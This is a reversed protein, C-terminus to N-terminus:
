IRIMCNHEAAEMIGLVVKLSSLADSGSVLPEKDLRVCDIFADIVGTNTQNDNTQISELKYNIREGEKTIVEIQNEPSNYIKIIGKECYLTTSNDEEGYYTWSFSATGLRGQKTKLICVINDCVEIPKGNEDVKDLAGQFASVQAVEDDLLYHLLDIKHIGLDGAVGLGSRDKKFFWTSRTKNVGWQEPGQHGFTTRFTLVNGFEKSAIMEKAKQHARTFRQNHDIMLKNGTKRQAEVIENAHEMTLSIPKECLVHKGNLLAKTSFIHHNENSSCDSIIQISPDLLLEDVTEVVRGGFMTALNEAREINRDYFIIEKVFPNAKYEPAHRLKAISGCGIIGVKFDM